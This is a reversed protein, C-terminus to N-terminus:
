KYRKIIYTVLGSIKEKNIRDMTNHLENLKETGLVAKIKESDVENLCYGRETMESLKLFDDSASNYINVLKLGAKQFLIELGKKTHMVIHVPADCGTWYKGYREYEYSDCVPLEMILVGDPSLKGEAAILTDLPDVVHEFSHIMWIQDWKGEVKDITVSKILVGNDTEFDESIFPDMGMVNKFGLCRLRNLFDGSGCGVDLIKQKKNNFDIEKINRLKEEATGLWDSKLRRYISSGMILPKIKKKILNFGSISKKSGFSYYTDNDYYDGLNDPIDIIQISGCSSCKFYEFKSNVDQRVNILEVIQTTEIPNEEGCVRCKYMYVEGAIIM